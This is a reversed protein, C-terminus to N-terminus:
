DIRPNALRLEWIWTEGRRGSRISLTDTVRSVAGAANEPAPTLGGVGRLTDILDTGGLELPVGDGAHPISELEREVQTLAKASAVVLITETGGASTVTWERRADPLRHLKEGQLPNQLAEAPLPFLVYGNGLEDSNLVYVHMNATGRAELFLRDGPAVRSGAALRQVTEDDGIKFFSAEVELSAPAVALYVLLAVAIAAAAVTGQIWSRSSKTEEDGGAGALAREMEGSSGYRRGPEPDLAKEIVRVLSLPVDSRVDRLPVTEGSDHKARLEDFNAAEIPFRGSVLRYLLVGLSYIDSRPGVGEGRLVEPAMYVPTGSITGEEGPDDLSRSDAVSSFDLLVIRGGHERMVNSTKIDRHVLGAAHVAAIARCLDLGVAVAEAPGFPGQEELIEELTRGELLDTWMGVRGDHREAGHVALVNDHRVRALRRAEEVFRHGAMEDEGVEPRMLKLAVDRQLAPDHARYVDGFGGSGIQEVIRLSGWRTPAEPEDAAQRGPAGAPTSEMAESEPGLSEIVRLWGLQGTLNTHQRVEHDWDIREGGTIAEAIRDLVHDDRRM